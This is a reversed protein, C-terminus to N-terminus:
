KHLNQLRNLELELKDIYQVSNQYRHDDVIPFLENWNRKLLELKNKHKTINAKLGKIKNNLDINQKQEETIAPYNGWRMEVYFRPYKVQLLATRYTFYWSWKTRVAWTLKDWSLIEILTGNGHKDYVFIKVWHHRYEVNM